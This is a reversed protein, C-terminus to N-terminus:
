ETLLSKKWLDKGSINESLCIETIIHHGCIKNRKRGKIYSFLDKNHDKRAHLSVFIDGDHCGHVWQKDVEYFIITFSWRIIHTTIDLKIKEYIYPLQIHYFFIVVILFAAFFFKRFWLIPRFGQIINRFLIEMVLKNNWNNKRWM